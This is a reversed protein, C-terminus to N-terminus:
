KWRTNLFRGIDFGPRDLLLYLRATEPNIGAAVLKEDGTLPREDM